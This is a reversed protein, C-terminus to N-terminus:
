TSSEQLALREQEAYFTDSIPANPALPAMYINPGRAPKKETLQQTEQAHLPALGLPALGGQGEQSESDPLTLIWQGALRESHVKLRHRARKLTRESHGQSRGERTVIRSPQPGDSLAEILFESAAAIATRDENNVVMPNLEDADIDPLAGTWNIRSFHGASEIQFGLTNVKESYNTKAPALACRVKDSDIPGVVIMSRTVDRWAASGLVTDAAARQHSGQKNTHAIGLIAFDNQRAWRNIPTLHSRVGTEAYDTGSFELHDKLADCILLTAGHRHMSNAIAPLEDPGLRVLGPAEPDGKGELLIVNAMNAGAAELRGAIITARDESILMMTKETISLETGPLPEGRSLKAAVDVAVTSKGVGGPGAMLTLEGKPILGYWLWEVPEPTIQSFPRVIHQASERAKVAPAPHTRLEDVIKVYERIEALDGSSGPVIHLPLERM